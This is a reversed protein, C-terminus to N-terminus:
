PTSAPSRSAAKAVPVAEATSPSSPSARLIQVPSSPPAQSAPRAQAPAGLAGRSAVLRQPPIRDPDVALMAAWRSLFLAHDQLFRIHRRAGAGYARFLKMGYNTGFERPNRLIWNFTIDAWWALASVSGGM